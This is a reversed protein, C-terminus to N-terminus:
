FKPSMGIYQLLSINSNSLIKGQEQCRLSHQRLIKLLGLEIVNKDKTMNFEHQCYFLFVEQLVVKSINNEWARFFFDVDEGYIMKENFLGIKDFLSKRYTGSDLSIFNYPESLPTLINERNDDYVIIKMKQILGQVIDVTPNTLLYKVQNNLKNEAWLDDVDLFTIFNGQAIKIGKNRASAPGQNEQYIYKFNDNLESIIKATNDTSGDDIFIIELPHYNQKKVTKIASKIFKEGNYVPIIISVLFQDKNISM